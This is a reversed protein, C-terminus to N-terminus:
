LLLEAQMGLMGLVCVYVCVRLPFFFFFRDYMKQLKHDTSYM